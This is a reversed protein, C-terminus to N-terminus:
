APHRRILRPITAAAILLVLVLSAGLIGARRGVAIDLVLLVTGVVILSVGVLQARLARHGFSVVSPKLRHRFLARHLNVPALGLVITVAAFMVLAVYVGHEFADLQSFRAQFPLTLMFGSLIQTGTQTVRLEQLIDNWNRDMRQNETEDRGDNAVADADPSKPREGDRSDASARSSGAAHVDSEMTWSNGPRGTRMWSPRRQKAVGVVVWAGRGGFLAM